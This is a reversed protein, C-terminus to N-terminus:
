IQSANKWVSIYVNRKLRKTECMYELYQDSSEDGASVAVSAMLDNPSSLNRAHQRTAAKENSRPSAGASSCTGQTTCNLLYKYAWGELEVSSQHYICPSNTSYPM